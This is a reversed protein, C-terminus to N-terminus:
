LLLRVEATEGRKVLDENEPIVILSNAQSPDAAPKAVNTGNHVSTLARIYHTTGPNLKLTSALHAVIKPRDLNRRGLLMMLGPRIIAEFAELAYKNEIAFVPRDFAIGFGCNGPEMQVRNFHRTGVAAIAELSLDHREHSSISVIVADSGECQGLARQIGLRGDKVHILRGLECGSGLVMGVLAYRTANRCEGPDIDGFSDVIDAGSTIVSIKPRRRVPVGHCGLATIMEMECAGIPIGEPLVVRGAPSVSGAPIVNAAQMVEDLIFLQAGNEPRYTSGLEVVADANKPLPDNRRVRMATGPELAKGGPKSSSLVSVAMPNSGTAGATDSAIVAYGDIAASGHPPVPSQAVLDQALTRGFTNVIGAREIELPLLFRSLIVRASRVDVIGKHSM